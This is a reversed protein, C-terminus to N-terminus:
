VMQPIALEVSATPSVGSGAPSAAAPPELSWALRSTCVYVYHGGWGGYPCTFRPRAAKHASRTRALWNDTTTECLVGWWKPRAAAWM